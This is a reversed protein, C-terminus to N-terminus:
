SGTHGFGGSDRSTPDLERTVEFSARYVRSIIIQAIRDGRKVSFPETGLNVIIVGVEGRYDADITGPSNLLSIGNKLALGSRPRIQAEYGEPIAVSFGTPILMREGPKILMEQDVAAYLDMGAAHETMYCPLPIDGDQDGRVRKILIKVESMKTEVGIDETYLLM